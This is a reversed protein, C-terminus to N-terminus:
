KATRIDNEQTPECSLLSPLWPDVGGHEGEPGSGFRGPSIQNKGATTTRRTARKWVGPDFHVSVTSRWSMRTEKVQAYRASRSTIFFVDDRLRAIRIDATLAATTQEAACVDRASVVHILVEFWSKVVVPLQLLPRGLVPGCSAIKLPVEPM